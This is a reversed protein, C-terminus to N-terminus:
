NDWFFLNMSIIQMNDLIKLLIANHLERDGFITVPLQTIQLSFAVTVRNDGTVTSLTWKKGDSLQLYM